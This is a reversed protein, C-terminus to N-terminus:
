MFLPVPPAQSGCGACFEILLKKLELCWVHIILRILHFRKANLWLRDKVCLWKQSFNNGYTLCLGIWRLKTQNATAPCGTHLLDSLIIPYCPDKTRGLLKLLLVNVCLVCIYSICM